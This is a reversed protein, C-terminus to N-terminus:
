DRLKLKVLTDFDERDIYGKDLWTELEQKTPDMIVSMMELFHSYLSLFQREIISYNGTASIDKKFKRINQFHASMVRERLRIIDRRKWWNYLGIITGLIGVIFGCFTFFYSYTQIFENTSSLIGAM